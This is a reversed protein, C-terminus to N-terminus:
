RSLTSIGRAPVLGVRFMADLYFLSVIEEKSRMGHLHCRNQRKSDAASFWDLGKGARDRIRHTERVEPM